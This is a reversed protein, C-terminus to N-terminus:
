KPTEKHRDGRVVVADILGYEKAQESSMFFDRETDNQIKEMPQGTHHVLIGNLHERMRIIERAHIEIDTAQGQAGGLPQHIMIRSNPLAYRKGKAGATLLLAGASAAQGMCTTTVDPKVYQMTDYMAMAATVVGGPSNIYVHIDKDPDESELFLLQAIFLNAVNDDIPGGIFVIRDKLLRSYIDYAREGRNSQEVVIPVYPM